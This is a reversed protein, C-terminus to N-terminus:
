EGLGMRQQCSPQLIFTAVAICSLLACPIMVHIIVSLPNRRLHLKFTITSFHWGHDFRTGTTGTVDTQCYYLVLQVLETIM